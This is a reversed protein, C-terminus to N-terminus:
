ENCVNEMMQKIIEHGQNRIYKNNDMIMEMAMDHINQKTIEQPNSINKNMKYIIEKIEKNM